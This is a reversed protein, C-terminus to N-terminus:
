TVIPLAINLGAAPLVGVDVLPESSLVPRAGAVGAEALRRAVVAFRTPVFHNFTTDASGRSVPRLPIAHEFYIHVM